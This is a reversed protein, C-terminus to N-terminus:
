ATTLQFPNHIFEHGLNHEQFKYPLASFYWPFDSDPLNTQLQYQLKLCQRHLVTISGGKLVVKLKIPQEAYDLQNTPNTTLLVQQSLYTGTIFPLLSSKLVAKCKQQVSSGFVKTRNLEWNSCKLDYFM